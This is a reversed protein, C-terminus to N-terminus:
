LSLSKPFDRVNKLRGSPFTGSSLPSVNTTTMQSVIYRGTGQYPGLEEISWLPMGYKGYNTVRLSLGIFHQIESM